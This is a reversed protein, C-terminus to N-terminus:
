RHGNYMLEGATVALALRNQPPALPCTAYATFVCPPNIAKNFDLIVPSSIKLNRPADAYLFRSAGYTTKGSTQDRFVFFLEGEDLVPELRFERGDKTFTVYGPSEDDEKLGDVVTDFTIKHPKDWPTFRARIRWSPDPPYWSLHTFHTRTPAASDKVRIGAKDGRKILFFKVTGATLITTDEKMEQAPLNVGAAPQFTVTGAKLTLTGLRAPASAPLAVESTPDSGVRNPGQKLWWLGVVSAWGDPARLSQERQTRFAAIEQSYDLAFM